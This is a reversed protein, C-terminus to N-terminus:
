QGARADERLADLVEDVLREVPGADRELWRIRRDRRFWTRQAKAYRRTRQAVLQAAQESTVLGDGVALAERYGIGASELATRSIGRGLASDVEERLAGTEFMTRARQEILQAHLDRPADLGIITAPLPTASRTRAAHLPPGHADLIELARVIRRPNHLDISAAAAPDRDHLEAALQDLGGPQRAIATRQERRAPDAPVRALDLGDILATTYLGTGGVLIPQAKRADMDDLTSRAAALWDAVSFPTGPAHLALLHCPITRLDAATPACTAVHLGAIVQRSDANLLEAPQLREAVAVALPTKGTATPGVIALLRM